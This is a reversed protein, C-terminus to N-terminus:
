SELPLTVQIWLGGLPSLQATLAGDHAEVIKKCIALGLGSGEDSHSRALNGRYFQNFLKALESEPVAPASDQLHLTFCSDQLELTIQLRGNNHTYKLSNDLLNSVLQRM